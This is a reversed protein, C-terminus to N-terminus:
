KECFVVEEVPQQVNNPTFGMKFCRWYVHEMQVWFNFHNEFYPLLFQIHPVFSPVSDSEFKM